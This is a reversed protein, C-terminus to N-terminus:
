KKKALRVELIGNRFSRSLAAPPFKSPLLVEKRYRRDKGAASILLVDDKVEAQVQAQEVGPLEAVVLVHDTEDFVDVIPEREDAVTPQGQADKKINGFPEVQVKDRDQGLGVKVTFGYVGKVGKAGGASELTGERRLEGGKDALEGLKEVLNGLDGFLGGLNFEFGSKKQGPTKQNSM